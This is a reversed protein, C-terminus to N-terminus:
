RTSSGDHMICQGPCSTRLAVRAKEILRDYAQRRSVRGIQRQGARARSGEDGEGRRGERGAPWSATAGIIPRFPPETLSAVHSLCSASRVTEDVSLVLCAAEAASQIANIKVLAPEWVFRKMNDAVGGGDVVDADVSVGAWLDGKAHLMRLRNLVDTGDIGANDCLQRPIIELSKAFAAIILQQKGEITRAITRLHKSVEM